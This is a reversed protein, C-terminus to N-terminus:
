GGGACVTGGVKWAEAEEDVVSECVWSESVGELGRARCVRVEDRGFRARGMGAIATDSKTEGGRKM